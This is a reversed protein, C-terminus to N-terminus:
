AAYKKIKDKNKEIVEKFEEKNAKKGKLKKLLKWGAAAGGALVVAPVAVQAIPNAKFFTAGKSIIDKAWPVKGVLDKLKNIAGGGFDKLKDWLGKLFGTLGTTKKVSALRGKSMQELGYKLGKEDMGASRVAATGMNKADQIGKSWSPRAGGSTKSAFDALGKMWDGRTKEELYQKEAYGEFLIETNLECAEELYEFNESMYSFIEKSEEGFIAIYEEEALESGNELIDKYFAKTLQSYIYNEEFNCGKYNYVEALMELQTNM